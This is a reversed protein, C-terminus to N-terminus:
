NRYIVRKLVSIILNHDDIDTLGSVTITGIIGTNKIIVPFCGGSLAYDENLFVSNAGFSEPGYNKMKLKMLMSSHGFRKTLNKKREIWVENDTSTGQHAYFFLRQQYRTIDIAVPFSENIATDVLLRGIELATENSFSEFQYDQEHKLLVDITIENQSM